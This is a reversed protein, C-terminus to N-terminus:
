DWAVYGNIPPVGALVAYSMAQPVALCAVTLASLFDGRLNAALNKSYDPFWGLPPFYQKWDYAQIVTQISSM